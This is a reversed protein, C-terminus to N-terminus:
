KKSRKIQTMKKMSTKELPHKKYDEYMAFFFLSTLMGIVGQVITQFISVIWNDSFYYNLIGFPIMALSVILSYLLTFGFTRWWRGKVLRHSIISTSFYRHDDLLFSPMAFTMFSVFFWFAVWVLLLSVLIFSVASIVGIAWFNQISDIIHPYFHEVTFFALIGLFIFIFFIILAALYYLGLCVLTGLYPFFNKRDDFIEAPVVKEKKFIKVLNFMGFIWVVGSLIWVFLYLITFMIFRQPNDLFQNLIDQNNFDIGKYLLFLQMLTVLGTTLLLVIFLSKKDRFLLKWSTQLLQFFSAM